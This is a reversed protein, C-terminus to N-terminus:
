EITSGLVEIETMMNEFALAPLAVETTVPLAPAFWESRPLANLDHVGHDCDGKYFTTTKAIHHREVNPLLNIVREIYTLCQHVQAETDGPHMVAGESDTAIQGGIFFMDECKLGHKYPLHIAWDWHNEPWVHSRELHQGDTGLMAWVEMKILLGPRELRPVPIGTAVPGPETFYGARVKAATEWDEYTGEGVYYINFKVADDLSAGYQSLVKSIRDMTVRSQNVIDGPYEVAGHADVAMQADTFIFRGARIGHHGAGAHHTDITIPDQTPVKTDDRKSATFEVSALIGPEPCYPVPVLTVVPKPHSELTGLVLKQVDEPTVDDELVCYIVVKLIQDSTGGAEHLAGIGKETANILQARLDGPNEPIGSEDLDVQGGVVV